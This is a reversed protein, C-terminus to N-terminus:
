ATVDLAEAAGGVSLDKQMQKSKGSPYFNIKKIFGKGWHHRGGPPLNFADLITHHFPRCQTHVLVSRSVCCREAHRLHFLHFIDTFDSFFQLEPLLFLAAIFDM